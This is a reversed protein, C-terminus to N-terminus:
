TDECFLLHKAALYSFPIHRIVKRPTEDGSRTM